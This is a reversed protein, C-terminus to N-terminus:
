DTDHADSAGADGPKRARWPVEAEGARVNAVRALTFLLDSMRNLAPVLYAGVETRRALTVSQREARRVVARAVQLAGSASTGGPLVFQRLPPIEADYRDIWAELLAVDQEDIARVYARQRAGHPTALDAGIDFLLSQLAGLDHDLREAEDHDRGGGERLLARALGLAANAEDVTGYAEVRADDKPVREGGFLGTDGADGTRTYIKM